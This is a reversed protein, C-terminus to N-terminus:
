QKHVICNDYSTTKPPKHCGKDQSFFTSFNGNNLFVFLKTPVQLRKETIPYEKICSHMVHSTKFLPLWEM